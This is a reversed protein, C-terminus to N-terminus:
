RMLPRIDCKITQRLAYQESNILNMSKTSVNRAHKRPNTVGESRSIIDVRFRMLRRTMNLFLMQLHNGLNWRMPINKREFRWTQRFQQFHGGFLLWLFLVLPVASDCEFIFEGDFQIEKRLSGILKYTHRSNTSDFLHGGCAAKLHIM